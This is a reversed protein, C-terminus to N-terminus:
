PLPEQPKWTASSDWSSYQVAPQPQAQWDPTPNYPPPAPSARYSDMEWDQHLNNAYHTNRDSDGAGLPRWQVGPFMMAWIFLSVITVSAIGDVFAAVIISTRSPIRGSESINTLLWRVTLLLLPIPTGLTIGTVVPDPTSRRKLQTYMLISSVVVDLYAIVQLVYVIHLLIARQPRSDHWTWLMEMGIAYVYAKLSAVEWAFFAILLTYILAILMWDFMKKRKQSMFMSRQQQQGAIDSRVHLLYLVVGPLFATYSFNFFEPIYYYLTDGSVRRRHALKGLKKGVSCILPFCVQM